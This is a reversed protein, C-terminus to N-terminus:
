KQSATQRAQEGKEVLARHLGSATLEPQEALMEGVVRAAYQEAAYDLDANFRPDTIAGLDIGLIM